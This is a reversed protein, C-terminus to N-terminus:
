DISSMYLCKRPSMRGHLRAAQTRALCLLSAGLHLSSHEASGAEGANLVLGGLIIYHVHALSLGMM